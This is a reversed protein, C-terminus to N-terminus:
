NTEGIVAVKETVVNIGDADFDYLNISFFEEDSCTLQITTDSSPHGVIVVTRSIVPNLPHMSRNDEPRYEDKPDIIMKLGKPFTVPQPSMAFINCQASNENLFTLKPVKFRITVGYSSNPLQPSIKESTTIDSQLTMTTAASAMNSVLALGILIFSIKLRRM